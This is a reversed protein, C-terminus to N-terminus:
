FSSPYKEIQSIASYQRPRLRRHHEMVNTGLDELQDLLASAFTKMMPINLVMRKSGVSDQIGFTGPSFHM